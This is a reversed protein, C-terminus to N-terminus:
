FIRQAKGQQGRGKPSGVRVDVIYICYISVASFSPKFEEM